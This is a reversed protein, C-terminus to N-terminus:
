CQEPSLLGHSECVLRQSEGCKCSAGQQNRADCDGFIKENNVNEIQYSSILSYISLPCFSEACVFM